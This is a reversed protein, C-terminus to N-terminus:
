IDPFTFFTSIKFFHFEFDPQFIRVFGWKQSQFKKEFARSFKRNVKRVHELYRLPGGLRAAQTLLFITVMRCVLLFINAFFAFFFIILKGQCSQLNIKSENNQKLDRPLQEFHINKHNIWLTMSYLVFYCRRSM